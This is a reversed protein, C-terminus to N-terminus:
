PHNQETSFCDECRSSWFEAHSNRKCFVLVKSWGSFWGAGSRQDVVCSGYSITFLYMGWDQIKDEFLRVSSVHHIQRFSSGATTPPRSWLEIFFDGRVPSSQIEPQRDQSADRIRFQHKAKVWWMHHHTNQYMLSWLIQSKRILHQLFRRQIQVFTERHVMRTGFVQRGM